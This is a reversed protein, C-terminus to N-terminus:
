IAAFFEIGEVKSNWERIGGVFYRCGTRKAAVIELADDISTVQIKSAIKGAEKAMELTVEQQELNPFDELFAEVHTLADPKEKQVHRIIKAVGISSVVGSIEGKEMRDFLFRIEGGPRTLFSLVAESTLFVKAGAHIDASKWEM